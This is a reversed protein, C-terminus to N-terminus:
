LTIKTVESNSTCKMIEVSLVCFTLCGRNRTNYYKPNISNMHYPVLMQSNCVAEVKLNDQYSCWVVEHKETHKNQSATLYLLMCSKLIQFATATTWGMSSPSLTVM